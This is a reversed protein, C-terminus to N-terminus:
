GSISLCDFIVQHQSPLRDHASARAVTWASRLPMPALGDASVHDTVSLLVLAPEAEREDVARGIRKVLAATIRAPLEVQEAACALMSAATRPSCDAWSMARCVTVSIPSTAGILPPRQAIPVCRAPAFCGCTEFAVRFAVRLLVRRAAAVFDIEGLCRALSCRLAVDRGRLGRERVVTV